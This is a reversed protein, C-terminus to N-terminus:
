PMPPQSHLHPGISNAYKAVANGLLLSFGDHTRRRLPPRKGKRSNPSAVATQGRCCRLSFVRFGAVFLQHRLNPLIIRLSELPEKVAIRAQDETNRPSDHMIGALGFEAMLRLVVLNSYGSVLLAQFTHHGPGILAWGLAVLAIVVWERQRLGWAILVLMPLLLLVLHTGWSYSAVLPTVAVVAAAELSRGTVNRSPSRLVLFTVVLAALAILATIIRAAL